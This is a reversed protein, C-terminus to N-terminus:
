YGARHLLLVRQLLAASNKPTASTIRMIEPKNQILVATRTDEFIINSLPYGKAIKKTIETDLDDDTDKAEWHGRVLGMPDKLTGDPRIGKASLQPILTWHHRRATDALLSQFAVSVAGEHTAYQKALEDLTNSLVRNIQPGSPRRNQWGKVAERKPGGPRAAPQGRQGSQQSVPITIAAVPGYNDSSRPVADFCADLPLLALIKWDDNLGSGLRCRYSRQSYATATPEPNISLRGM